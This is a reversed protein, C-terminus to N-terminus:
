PLWAVEDTHLVKMRFACIKHLTSVDVSLLAFSVDEGVDNAVIKSIGWFSYAFATRTHKERQEVSILTVGCPPEELAALKWM